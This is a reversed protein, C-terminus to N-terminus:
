TDKILEKRFNGVIAVIYIVLAILIKITRKKM